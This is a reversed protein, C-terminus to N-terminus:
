RGKLVTRYLPTYVPGSAGLLSQMLVVAEIMETAPAIAGFGSVAQGVRAAQAPSTERRVRGLTIHPSFGREETPFGLPAIADEIALQLAGLGEESERELGVWVV